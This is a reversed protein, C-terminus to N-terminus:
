GLPTERLAGQFPNPADPNFRTPPMYPKVETSSGGNAIYVDSDVDGATDYSDFTDDFGFKYDKEYLSKYIVKRVRTRYKGHEADPISILDEDFLYHLVDLM